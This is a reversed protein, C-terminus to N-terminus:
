VELTRGEQTRRFNEACEDAVATLRAFREKAIEPPIRGPLGAARTGERPSYIFRHVNAFGIKRVFELTRQFDEETEGPFGVIVDTGVHIGDVKEMAKEALEFFQATDYRRGMAKLVRDSGSQLSLHLFRCLKPNGAMEELVNDIDFGPETSGLRIRFDGPIGAVAKVLDALRRGGDDYACSNVGTLVIEPFGSEAARRCEDVTEDFSRSRSRGRVFPVICYSCFNDCGEQIKVFARTRFPFAGCVGETFTGHRGYAPDAQGLCSRKFANGKVENAKGFQDPAADAGCGTAVIRADPHERRMRAVLRRSKAVAEATVACTNVVIVDPHGGDPLNEDVLEDGAAEFRAALLASDASNLRCGLTSILVKRM